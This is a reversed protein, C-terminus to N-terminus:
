YMSYAAAPYEYTGGFLLVQTTTLSYFFVVLMMIPTIIGWCIRWYFSSKMGLMYEIDLCM